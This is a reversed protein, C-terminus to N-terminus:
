SYFGWSEFAACFFPSLYMSAVRMLHDKDNYAAITTGPITPGCTTKDVDCMLHAISLMHVDSNEPKAVFEEVPEEEVLLYGASGFDKAEDYGGRHQGWERICSEPQWVCARPDQQMQPIDGILVLQAGKERLLPLLFSDYWRLAPEKVHENNVATLGVVDGAKLEARLADTILNRYVQASEYSDQNCVGLQEDSYYSCMGRATWVFAMKGKVAEEMAAYLMGGHSDGIWFFARQGPTARSPKLCKNMKEAYPWNTTAGWQM